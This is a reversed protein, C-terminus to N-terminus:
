VCKIYKLIAKRIENPKSIIWKCGIPKAGKPLDVLDWVDNDEMSKMENKMADIWKQSKECQKVQNFSVQDDKLGIDFEHEQLYIIYDNLITSKREM